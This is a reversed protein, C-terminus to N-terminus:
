KGTAINDLILKAAAKVKHGDESRPVYENVIYALNKMGGPESLIEGLSKNAFKGKTGPWIVQKAAAVPDEQVPAHQAQVPAAVQPQYMPINALSAPTNNAPPNTNNGFGNNGFFSDQMVAPPNSPPTVPLGTPLTTPNAAQNATPPMGSSADSANGTPVPEIGPCPIGAEALAQRIDEDEMPFTSIAGFGYQSLAAGIAFKRTQNSTYKRDEWSNLKVIGTADAESAIQDEVWITARWHEQLLQASQGEVSSDAVPNLPTAGLFQTVIRANLKNEQCYTLFWLEKEDPPWYYIAKIPQDPKDPFKIDSRIMDCPDFAKIPRLAVVAHIRKQTSQIM